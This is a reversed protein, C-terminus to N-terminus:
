RILSRNQLRYKPQWCLLIKGHTFSYHFHSTQTATSPKHAGPLTIQAM